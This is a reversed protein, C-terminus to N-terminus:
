SKSRLDCGPRVPPGLGSNWEAQDVLKYNARNRQIEAGTAPARASSLFFFVDDSDYCHNHGHVCRFSGPKLFKFFDATRPDLKTGLAIPEHCTRCQIGWFNIRGTECDHTKESQVRQCETASNPTTSM